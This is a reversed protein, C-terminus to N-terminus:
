LGYRSKTANYITSIEQSTLERNYITMDTMMGDWYQGDGNRGIATPTFTGTLTGGTTLSNGNISAKLVGLSSRIATLFNWEGNLSTTYGISFNSSSGEDVVRFFINNNSLFILKTGSGGSTKGLFSRELDTDKKFWCNITFEGTLSLPTGITIYDDVGDFSWSGNGDAVYQVGNILVGNNDDGSVDYATTPSTAYLNTNQADLSLVLGNTPIFRQLGANYNQLVEQETLARNYISTLSINGWLDRTGNNQGLRFGGFLSSNVNVTNQGTTQYRLVGNLYM